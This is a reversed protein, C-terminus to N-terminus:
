CHWMKTNARSVACSIPSLVRKCFAKCFHDQVEGFHIKAKCLMFFHAFILLFYCHSMKTNARSVACSIPSLVRKTQTWNFSCSKAFLNRRVWFIQVKICFHHLNKIIVICSDTDSPHASHFFILIVNWYKPTKRYSVNEKIKPSPNSCDFIWLELCYWINISHLIAKVHFYRFTM